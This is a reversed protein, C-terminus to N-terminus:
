KVLPGNVVDRKKGGEAKLIVTCCIHVFLRVFFCFFMKCFFTSPMIYVDDFVYLTEGMFSCKKSAFQCEIFM